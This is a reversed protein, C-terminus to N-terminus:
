RASAITSLTLCYSIRNAHVCLVSMACAALFQLCPLAPSRAGCGAQIEVAVAERALIEFTAM